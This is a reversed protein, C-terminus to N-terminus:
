SKCIAQTMGHPRGRNLLVTIGAVRASLLFSSSVQNFATINNLSQREAKDDTSSPNVVPQGTSGSAIGKRICTTM